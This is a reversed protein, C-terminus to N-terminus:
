VSDEYGMASVTWHITPHSVSVYIVSGSLMMSVQGSRGSAFTQLGSGDAESSFRMELPTRTDDAHMTYGMHIHTATPPAFESVSFGGPVSWQPEHTVSAQEAMHQVKKLNQWIGEGTLSSGVFMLVIGVLGMLAGLLTFGFGVVNLKDGLGMAMIAEM